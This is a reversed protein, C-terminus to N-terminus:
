EPCNDTVGSATDQANEEESERLVELEELRGQIEEKREETTDEAELEVELEAKESDLEEIESMMGEVEDATSELEGAWSDLDQARQENEDAMESDPFYARQNDCGEQYEEGVERATGALSRLEEALDEVSAKGVAEQAEWVAVMKSSSTMSQTIQCSNCVVVKGRYRPKAWKYPDGTVIEKGCGRCNGQARRARAVFHTRAM